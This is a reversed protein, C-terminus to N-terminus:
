EEDDDQGGGGDDDDDDFYTDNDEEDGPHIKGAIVDEIWTDLESATPMDEEDDMDMWVSDAQSLYM